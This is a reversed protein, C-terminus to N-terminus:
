EWIVQSAAVETEFCEFSLRKQECVVLVNLANSNRQIITRQIFQRKNNNNVPEHSSHLVICLCSSAKAGRWSAQAVLEGIPTKYVVGVTAM